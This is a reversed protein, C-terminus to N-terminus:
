QIVKSGPPWNLKHRHIARLEEATKKKLAQLEHTYFVALGDGPNFSDDLALWIDAGLVESAILVAVVKDDIVVDIAPSQDGRDGTLEFRGPRSIVKAGRFVSLVDAVTIGLKTAPSEDPQASPKFGTGTNMTPKTKKNEMPGTLAM